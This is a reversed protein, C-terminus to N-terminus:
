QWNLTIHITSFMNVQALFFFNGLYERLKAIVNTINKHM